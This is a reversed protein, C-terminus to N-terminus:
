WNKAGSSTLGTENVYKGDHFAVKLSGAQLPGRKHTNTTPLTFAHFTYSYLTCVSWLIGIVFVYTELIPVFTGLSQILMNMTNPIYYYMTLKM